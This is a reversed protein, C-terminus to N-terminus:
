AQKHYMCGSVSSKVHLFTRELRSRNPDSVAWQRTRHSCENCWSLHLYPYVTESRRHHIYTLWQRPFASPVLHLRASFILAFANRIRCSNSRKRLKIRIPVLYNKKKKKKKIEVVLYNSVVGGGAPFKAYILLWWWGSDSNVALLVFCFVFFWWLNM